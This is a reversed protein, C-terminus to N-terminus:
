GINFLDNNNSVKYMHCLFYEVRKNMWVLNLHRKNIFFKPLEKSTILMIGNFESIAWALVFLGKIINNVTM